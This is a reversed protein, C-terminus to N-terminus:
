AFCAFYRMYTNEAEEYGFDFRTWCAIVLGQVVDWGCM